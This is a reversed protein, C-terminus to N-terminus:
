LHIGVERFFLYILECSAQHANKFVQYTPNTQQSEKYDSYIKLPYSGVIGKLSYVQRFDFPKDNNMLRYLFKGCERNMEEEYLDHVRKFKHICVRNHSLSSCGLLHVPCCMDEMYHLSKGLEDFAKVKNGIKYFQIGNQYHMYMRKEANDKTTLIDEVKNLLNPMINYFHSKYIYDSEEKGSESKPGWRYKVPGSVTGGTPDSAIIKGDGTKGLETYTNSIYNYATYTLSNLDSDSLLISVGGEITLKKDTTYTLIKKKDILTTTGNM